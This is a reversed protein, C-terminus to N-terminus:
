QKEEKEVQREPWQQRKTEVFFIIRRSEWTEREYGNEIKDEQIKQQM